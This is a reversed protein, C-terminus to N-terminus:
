FIWGGEEGFAGSVGQGAWLRVGVLWWSPLLLDVPNNEKKLTLLIIYDAPPQGRPQCIQQVLWVWCNFLVDRDSPILEIVAIVTVRQGLVSGTALFIVRLSPHGTRLLEEQVGRRCRSTPWGPLALATVVQAPQHLQSLGCAPPAHSRAVMMVYM